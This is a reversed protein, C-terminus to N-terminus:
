QSLFFNKLEGLDQGNAMTLEKVIELHYEPTQALIGVCNMNAANAARIAYLADEVVVCKDEKAGFYNAIDIFYQPSNKHLDVEDSVVELDFYKGLDFRNLVIDVLSRKTATALVLKKDVSKLHEFIELTAPDLNFVNQYNYGILAEMEQLIKEESEELGHKEKTYRIGDELTLNMTAKLLDEVPTLGKSKIYNVILNNWYEMSDIFTGDMDFIFVEM